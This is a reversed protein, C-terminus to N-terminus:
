PAAATVFTGVTYWANPPYSNLVDMTELNGTRFNPMLKVGHLALYSKGTM